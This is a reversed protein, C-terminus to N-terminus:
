IKPILCEMLLSPPNLLLSPAEPTSHQGYGLRMLYRLKGGHDKALAALSLVKDRSLDEAVSNLSQLKLAAAAQGLRAADKLSRGSLLGLVLGAVAADGAGTVDAIGEVALAPLKAMPGAGDSLAVGDRGLHIVINEFGLDHLQEAAMQLESHGTLAEIQLRNAVLAYVPAALELRLL